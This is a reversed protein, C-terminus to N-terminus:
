QSLEKLRGLAVIAELPTMKEPEIERLALIVASEAPPALANANDPFEPSVSADHNDADVNGASKERAGTADSATNPKPPIHQQKYMDGTNPLPPRDKGAGKSPIRQRMDGANFGELLEGAHSIVSQPLGALKAVHIGYSQGAEGRVLKRLFVIDDGQERATFCFNTVGPTSGELQSLEHYHTAFLTKARINQTIHELVAWAIALGDFTSTGRGIEDLLVLSNETANNLINAVETMEVMFTSQGTALDDSAGVRTFIRDALGIEAATAPVFSGIQAMLTILAVQRMYTSKGAMNPGTIITMRSEACMETDNPVFTGATLKEVVPHRGDKIYIRSTGTIEPKVYGNREAVEALSQLTDLTALVSAVFQVRAIEDVIERRLSDFIEFELAFIKEDAGLLTEELNKLEETIFREGNAITQKRIYHAPVKPLNAATVEIYYGFVRNFRVKLSSIGTESKERTELESLYKQANQKVDHLRDLAPDVGPCIMGGERVGQPPTETIIRAIKEFIDALTDFTRRIESNAASKTNILVREIEPLLEVSARLVALDRATAYRSVLRAMVRELDHIGHLYERLEARELPMQTWEDVADLRRRIEDAKVLPSDVWGRLLRAGSATKTADLVWLLSGKKGHATSTLELNRRSSADLNMHTQRASIKLRTIQMLASKQTDALYTLLAGAAATEPANESIGFGELHYTGFRDLLAKKANTAAFTWAPAVTARKGTVNEIVRILPFNDPVVIEAPAIRTIEDILQQENKEDIRMATFFGTTIDASAVSFGTKDSHIAAIFNHRGDELMNADTVTGPTVVRIVDRKVIGKALKADEVQDALAVRYGKEVLRAIYGDVAHAPVGCMPTREDGGGRSTLAIDLEKAAIKADDFFIEFFDGLRFMLIDNKHRAKISFYQEMMPTLKPM